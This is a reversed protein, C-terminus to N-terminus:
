KLRSLVADFLATELREACEESIADIAFSVRASGPLKLSHVVHAAGTVPDVGRQVVISFSVRQGERLGDTM